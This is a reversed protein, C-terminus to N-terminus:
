TGEPLPRALADLSRELEAADAPLTPLIARLRARARHLRSLTTSRGLGLVAGIAEVPLEHWYHLELALQDDLPLRRLAAHLLRRQQERACHQSPSTGTDQLSAIEPDFRARASLRDVLANRACRFLYARVDDIQAGARAREVCAAFSQHVLDDVGDDLKRALFDALEGGHREFLRRGAEVDGDAWARLLTRSDM